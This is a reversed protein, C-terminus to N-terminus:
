PILGGNKLNSRIIINQVDLFVTKINDQDTACTVHCYILREKVTNRTVFLTQIFEIAQDSCQKFHIQDQEPDERPEYDIGNWQEEDKKKKKKPLIYYKKKKKKCRLATKRLGAKHFEQINAYETFLRVAEHMANQQEDEFLVCNYHNLATVFIVGSVNDFHTIWKRRESRQGGVDTILFTTDQQTYTYTVAGTTRVRAKLVEEETPLFKPHMVTKAREFFYEMNDEFAFKGRRAFTAKVAPLKWLFSIANGLAVLDEESPEVNEGFTFESNKLLLKIYEVTETTEEILCDANKEKDMEYFTRSKVLLKTMLEILTQRIVWATQVAVRPEIMVVGQSRKLNKFITSKGSAGIGLLLLKREKDDKKHEVNMRKEIEDHAPDTALCCGMRQSQHNKKVSQRKIHKLQDIVSLESQQFNMKNDAQQLLNVIKESHNGNAFNITFVKLYQPIVKVVIIIKTKNKEKSASRM